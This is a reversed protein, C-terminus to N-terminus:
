IYKRFKALREDIRILEYVVKKVHLTRLDYGAKRFAVEIEQLEDPSLRPFYKFM